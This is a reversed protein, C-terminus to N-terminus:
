KIVEIKGNVVAQGTKILYLYLGSDVGSLDIHLQNETNESYFSQLIRGNLDFLYFDIPGVHEPPLEIICYERAPVPYLHFSGRLKQTTKVLPNFQIIHKSSEQGSKDIFSYVLSSSSSFPEKPNFVIDSPEYIKGQEVQTEDLFFLGPGTIENISIGAMGHYDPDQYYDQSSAFEMIHTEHNNFATDRGSPPSFTYYDQNPLGPSGFSNESLEWNEGTDTEDTINRLEISYGEDPLTPWGASAMLSLSKKIEGDASRLTLESSTSFGQNLNGFCLVPEPFVEKFRDLDECVVFRQGPYITDGESFTYLLQDNDGSIYWGDLILSDSGYYYYEMWDGADYVPHNNAYVECLQIPFSHDSPRFFVVIDMADTLQFDLSDESSQFPEWLDFSFGPISTNTLQYNMGPFFKGEFPESLIDLGSFSITGAGPPETRISVPVPDQLGFFDRIHNLVTDPRRKLYDDVIELSSEWNSMSRGWHEAHIEMDERYLGKMSDLLPRTHEYSFSTSILQTFHTIFHEKYAENKLLNRILINHYGNSWARDSFTLSWYLTNWEVNGYISYKRIQASASGSSPWL